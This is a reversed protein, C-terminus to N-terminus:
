RILPDGSRRRERERERKWAREREGERKRNKKKLAASRRRILSPPSSAFKLMWQYTSTAIHDSMKRCTM